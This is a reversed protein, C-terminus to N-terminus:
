RKVMLLVQTKCAHMPLLKRKIIAKRHTKLSQIAIEKQKPLLIGEESTGGIGIPAISIGKNNSSGTQKSENTGKATSQGRTETLGVSQALTETIGTSLTEAVNDSEQQSYSFTKKAYPSIQTYIQEYGRSITQLLEEEVAEALIIAQYVKGEAADIFREMGQMFNERNEVSISPIATVATVGASESEEYDSINQFIKSLHTNSVVSM